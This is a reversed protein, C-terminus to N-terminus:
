YCLDSLHRTVTRSQRRITKVIVQIHLDSLHMKVTCSQRRVSSQQAAAKHIDVFAFMSADTILTEMQQDDEFPLCPKTRNSFLHVHMCESVHVNMHM